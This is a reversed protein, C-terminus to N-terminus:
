RQETGVAPQEIARWDPYRPMVVLLLGCLLSGIAGVILFGGYDGSLDYAGAASLPGLAAGFATVSAMFGYISGFHRM